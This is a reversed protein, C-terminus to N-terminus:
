KNQGYESHYAAFSFVPPIMLCLLLIAFPAAFSALFSLAMLIGSASVWVAGATIRTRYLVIASKLTPFLRFLFEPVKTINPIVAGAVLMFFSCVACFLFGPNSLVGLTNGIVIFYATYDVAPLLLKVWVSGSGLPDKVAQAAIIGLELLALVVPIVFLFINKDMYSVARFGSDFCVAIRQSLRDYFLVGALAPALCVATIIMDFLSFSHKGKM